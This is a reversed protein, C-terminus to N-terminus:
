GWKSGELLECEANIFPRDLKKVQDIYIKGAANSTKKKPIQKNVKLLELSVQHKRLGFIPVVLSVVLAVFAIVYLFTKNIEIPLPALLALNFIVIGIWFVSKFITAAKQSQARLTRIEKVTLATGKDIAVQVLQLTPNITKSM